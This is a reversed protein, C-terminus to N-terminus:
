NRTTFRYISEVVTITPEPSPLEVPGSVKEPSELLVTLGSGLDVWGSRVATDIELLRSWVDDQLDNTAHPTADSDSAYAQVSIVPRDNDRDTDGGIRRIRLVGGHEAINAALYRFDAVTTTYALDDLFAMLARETREAM